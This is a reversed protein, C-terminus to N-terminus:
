MPDRSQWWITFPHKNYHMQQKSNLGLEQGPPSVRGKSWQTLPTSGCLTLYNLMFNATKLLQKSLLAKGPQKGTLGLRVEEESLFFSINAKALTWHPLVDCVSSTQNRLLGPVPLTQM